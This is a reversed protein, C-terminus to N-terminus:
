VYEVSPPASTVTVTQSQVGVTMAVDLSLTQDVSLSLNEQVFREFGSASVEVRYKGVPLYDIRYEGYGNTPASRSYGTDVNTAKASANSVVAGAPDKVTGVISGTTQQAHITALSGFMLVAVVWWSRAFLRKVSHVMENRNNTSMLNTM